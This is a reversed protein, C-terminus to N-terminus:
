AFHTELLRAIDHHAKNARLTDRISVPPRKKSFIWLPMVRFEVGMYDGSAREM